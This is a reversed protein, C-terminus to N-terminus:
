FQEQLKRVEVAGESARFADALTRIGQGELRDLMKVFVAATAVADGAATHRGDVEIGHRETIADLTHYPTESDLVVSLLLTDLVPNDFAVGCAAEKLKLFKMDFAANHAVLVADAAFRHFDPLVETAAPKDAVMADDIGHFRISQRPIPRGPNILREFTEGTLIRSNVVRVGAISVMEDGQSPRLGTTETDFVVYTLDRLPRELLRRDMAAVGFLDFDYFEPRPPLPVPAAAAAEAAAPVPLRLAAAGPGAAENWLDTGHHDLIDRLTMAGPAAAIAEDLWSEIQGVTVATGRWALHVVPDGTGTVSVEFARAGTAAATRRVIHDLALVLLFMDGHLRRPLDTQTLELGERAAAVRRALAEFLDPSDFDDSPWTTTVVARYHAALDEVVETMKTSEEELVNLFAARDEAAMDPHASLTEAAARLTAAPARLSEIMRRLGIDRRGLRTLRGGGDTISLLYGVAAGDAGAVLSIRVLAPHSPEGVEGVFTAPAGTRAAEASMRPGTLHDYAHMLPEATVVETVPRGLGLHGGTGLLRQATPNYLLVRHELNCVVVADTHDRIIRELYSKQAEVKDTAAAMARVLDRREGVLAEAIAAFADGLEGLVPHDPMDLPRDADSYIVHQTEEALRRMPQLLSRELFTWGALAIGAVAAAAGVLAAWERAAAPGGRFVGSEGLLWALVVALVVAVAVFGAFILAYTRTLSGRM